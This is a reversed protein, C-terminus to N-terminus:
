EKKLREKREKLKDCVDMSVKVISAIMFLGFIVNLFTKGNNENM